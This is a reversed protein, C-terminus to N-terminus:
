SDLARRIFAALQGRTMNDDPCFMDNAPPNCGRTVGATALRDIADEFISSDDDTFLDGGGADTYGMARVFLAAFEGRTVPRDGCYRDDVPPNCGNTVGATKIRDAASEYFRGDDDVFLDGGGNDTYDFIRDLFVALEGRTVPEDPCYRMNMPPDCGKTLGQSALWNIDAEFTNSEDDIFRGNLVTCLGDPTSQPHERNAACLNDEYINRTGGTGEGGPWNQSFDWFGYRNRYSENSRFVTPRLLESRRPGDDPGEITWLFGYTNGWALNGVFINDDADLSYFGTFSDFVENNSVSNGYSDWLVIGIESDSVVNDVLVNDDGQVEIGRVGGIMRNNEIRSGDSQDLLIGDSSIAGSVDVVCNTVTVGTRHVVLVGTDDQEDSTSVTHGDCDLTVGDAAIVINGQHDETLTTDSTVVMEGDTASAPLPLSMLVLSALAAGISRRLRM